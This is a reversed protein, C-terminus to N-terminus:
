HTLESDAALWSQIKRWLRDATNRDYSDDSSKEVQWDKRTTELRCGVSVWASREKLATGVLCSYAAYLGLRRLGAEYPNKNSPLQVDGSRLLRKVSKRLSM